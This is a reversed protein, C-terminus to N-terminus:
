FFSSPSHQTFDQLSKTEIVAAVFRLSINEGESCIKLDKQFLLSHFSDSMYVAVAHEQTPDCFSSNASKAGHIGSYSKTSYRPVPRSAQLRM